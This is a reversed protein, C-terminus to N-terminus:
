VIQFGNMDGRYTIERVYDDFTSGAFGRPVKERLSWQCFEYCDIWRQSRSERHSRLTKKSKM